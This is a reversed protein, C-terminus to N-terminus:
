RQRTGDLAVLVATARPTARYYRWRGEKRVTVLGAERLTRLAHSVASETADVLADLECVCLEDGAAHLLRILTYRTENGLAAFVDVDATDVEETATEALEGLRVQCAEMDDCCDGSEAVFRELRETIQVM